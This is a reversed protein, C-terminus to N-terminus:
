DYCLEGFDKSFCAESGWIGLNHVVPECGEGEALLFGPHFGQTLTNGKWGCCEGIFGYPSYWLIWVSYRNTAIAKKVHAVAELFFQEVESREGLIKRALRKIHNMEREQLECCRRLTVLESSSGALKEVYGHQLLHKEHEFERIVIMLSQELSQVKEQLIHTSTTCISIYWRQCVFIEFPNGGFGGLAQQPMGVLAFPQTYIHLFSSFHPPSNVHHCIKIFWDACIWSIRSEITVFLM